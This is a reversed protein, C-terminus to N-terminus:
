RGDESGNEIHFAPVGPALHTISHRANRKEDFFYEEGDTVLMGMDRTCAQDLRPHYIENFIGHSVTFWIRNAPNLSTGVGDKASSTWRPFIGPCGPANKKDDM